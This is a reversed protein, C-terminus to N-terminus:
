NLDIRNCIGFKNNAQPFAPIAPFNRKAKLTLGLGPNAFVIATNSIRKPM